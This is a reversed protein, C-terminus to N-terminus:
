QARVLREVCMSRKGFMEWEPSEYCLIAKLSMVVLSM